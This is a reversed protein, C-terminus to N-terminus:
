ATRTAWPAEKRVLELFSHLIWGTAGWITSGDMDYVYGTWAGRDTEYVQERELEALRHLPYELVEAIEGPDPVIVPRQAFLGVFPVVLIGTVYTHIPPLSGLVEVDSPDVGVEELTERLATQEVNADEDHRLGGPFSIEGRHRSLDESRKTFVMSPEEGDILPLLVGALRDGPAVEVVPDPDLSSRLVSWGEPPRYATMGAM